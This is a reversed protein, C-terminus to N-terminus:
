FLGKERLKHTYETFRCNAFRFKRGKMALSHYESQLWNNRIKNQYFYMLSINKLRPTFNFIYVPFVFHMVM